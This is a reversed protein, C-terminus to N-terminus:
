PRVRVFEYGRSSPVIDASLRMDRRKGLMLAPMGRPLLAGQETEPLLVVGDRIEYWQGTMDPQMGSSSLEFRGDRTLLLVSKNGPSSFSWRGVSEGHVRKTAGENPGSMATCATLVFSALFLFTM